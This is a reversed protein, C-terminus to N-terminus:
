MKTGEVPQPWFLHVWGCFFLKRKLESSFPSQLLQQLSVPQLLSTLWHPHAGSGQNFRGQQSQLSPNETDRVAWCAPLAEYLQGPLSEHCSGELFPLRTDPLPRTAVWRRLIVVKYIKYFHYPVKYSTWVICLLMSFHMTFFFFWTM